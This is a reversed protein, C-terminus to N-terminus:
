GSRARVGELREAADLFGPQAAVIAALHREADDLDHARDALDAALYRVRLDHEEDGDHQRELFGRVVARATDLQDAEGLAAAKVIVAEARRDEPADEDDILPQATESIRDPDRGLARLCDAALHNQDHRGTLRRYAQLESLAPGYEDQLYYAVGLAERVEALRPAEHRAWRLVEVAVDPRDEDIAAAGVSLALAVDHARPGRGLVREIERRVGRPLEPEEDDPLAPRPPAESRKDHRPPAGARQGARERGLPEAPAGPVDLGPPPGGGRERSSRGAGGRAQGGQGHGGRDRDAGAGRRDRHDDSRGDATMVM